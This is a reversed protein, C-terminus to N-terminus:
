RPCSEAAVDISGNPSEQRAASRNGAATPHGLHEEPSSGQLQALLEHRRQQLQRGLGQMDAGSRALLPLLTSEEHAIHLRVHGGLVTIRADFLADSATMGEIENMLAHAAAHEITAEDVVRSSALCNRAAPYVLEEELATHVELLTCIQWALEERAGGTAADDLMAGHEDFLQLLRRHDARLVQAADLGMAEIEQDIDLEEQTQLM